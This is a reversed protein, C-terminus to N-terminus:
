RLDGGPAVDDGDGDGNGDGNGDDVRFHSKARLASGSSRLVDLFGWCKM